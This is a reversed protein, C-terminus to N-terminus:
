VLQFFRLPKVARTRCISFVKDGCPEGSAGFHEGAEPERSVLGALRCGLHSLIAAPEHLLGHATQVEISAAILTGAPRHFSTVEAGVVHRDRFGIGGRGIRAPRQQITQGRQKKQQYKQGIVILSEPM